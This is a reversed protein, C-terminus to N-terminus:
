KGTILFLTQTVTNYYLKESVSIMNTSSNVRAKLKPSTGFATM